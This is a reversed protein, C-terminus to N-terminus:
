GPQRSRYAAAKIRNQCALSCYRRSQNKSLDYFYTACDTAACSGVQSERGNGVGGAPCDLFQHHPCVGGAAVASWAPVLAADPQHRHLTWGAERKTLHLQAPFRELLHNVLEAAADIDGEM